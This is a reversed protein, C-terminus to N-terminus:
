IIDATKQRPPTDFKLIFILGSFNEASFPAKYFRDWTDNRRKIRNVVVVTTPATSKPLNWRDPDLTRSQNCQVLCCLPVLLLFPGLRGIWQPGM